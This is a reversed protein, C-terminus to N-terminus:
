HIIYKIGNNTLEDLLPQSAGVKGTAPSKFFHWVAGKIQKTKVLEADKAIQTKISKTLSTYGVKSEHGIGNVLQDIYRGGKGTKFYQQSKGGLNKLANEGIEGTWGIRKNHVLVGSDTVAYNHYQTVTLNYVTIQECRSSINTIESYQGINLLLTDGVQLDESDM